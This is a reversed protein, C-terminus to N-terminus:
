LLAPGKDSADPRRGQQITKQTEADVHMLAAQFDFNEALCSAKLRKTIYDVYMGYRLLNEGTDEPSLIQGNLAQGALACQYHANMSALTTMQASIKYSEPLM